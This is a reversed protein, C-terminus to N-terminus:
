KAEPRTGLGFTEPNPLVSKTEYERLAEEIEKSKALWMQVSQDYRATVSDLWYERNEALWQERYAARLETLEEAMERMNNYIAGSYYRLRRAKAKDGLNLYAAWYERSLGEVVQFRRALHNLRAAAFEASALYTQNRKASRKERLLTEHAAEVSLRMEILKDHLTRARTQFDTTFPQQWFIQNNSSIGLQKNVGGLTTIAKTLNNGEARFFAWDFNRNFEDLNFPASPTISQWSAAAGLALGHWNMEFLTEGDDDWTTNMMGLANAAQGDRVFNVINVSANETNPFIQNWGSTGPCVFQRLGAKVFPEIRPAYTERAGYAWNMVIMEKPIRNILEPHNLAIDGWMMLERNYPKLTERVKNIYDFYVLGVGRTQAEDRSKGQGLEFTEDAGIHSFKSPFLQNIEAYWDKVLELSRADNPDLVDGYATEAYRNYTEFKLAKHLHGFTQQEPVLEIHLQKAYEVLEKIEAKTLSGRSTILPHKESGFIHEMYLSHMNMKLYAFTKLQRKIYGLTPVPGRSIDDSVARWRMTPFDTIEVGQIYANAGEGRVLQKLTQLGYFVGAASKGAVIVGGARVALVYGEANLDAPVVVSAKALADRVVRDDVTGILIADRANGGAGVRLNIGGTDRVDGAFDEAAFRDDSSARNALVIRTRSSLKFVGDGARLQKPAPIIQVDAFQQAVAVSGLLLCVVSRMVGRMLRALLRKDSSTLGVDRM